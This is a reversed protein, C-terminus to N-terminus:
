STSYRDGFGHTAPEFGGAGALFYVGSVIHRTNTKECLYVIIFGEKKREASFPYNAGRLTFAEPLHQACVPNLIRRGRGHQTTLILGCSFVLSFPLNRSIEGTKEVRFKKSFFVSGNQSKKRGRPDSGAFVPNELFLSVSNFLRFSKFGRCPELGKPKKTTKM